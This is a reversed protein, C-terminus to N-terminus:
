AFAPVASRLSVVIATAIGGQPWPRSARCASEASAMNKSFGGARRRVGVWINEARRGAEARPLPRRFRDHRRTPRQACLDVDLRRSCRLSARRDALHACGTDADGEHRDSSLSCLRAGYSAQARRREERGHRRCAVGCHLRLCLGIHSRGHRCRRRSIEPFAARVKRVAEQGASGHIVSGEPTIKSEFNRLASATLIASVEFGDHQSM